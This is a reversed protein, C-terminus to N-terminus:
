ITESRDSPDNDTRLAANWLRGHDFDAKPTGLQSATKSIERIRSSM